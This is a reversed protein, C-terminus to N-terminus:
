SLLFLPTEKLLVLLLVSILNLVNFILLQLKWSKIFSCLMVVAIEGVAYAACTVTVAKSRYDSDGIENLLLSSFSVGPFSFGFLALSVSAM